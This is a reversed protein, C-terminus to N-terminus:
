SYPIYIHLNLLTFRKVQMTALEEIQAFTAIMNSIRANKINVYIYQGNNKNQEISLPHVLVPLVTLHMDLPM